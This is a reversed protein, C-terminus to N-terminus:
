GDNAIALKISKFEEFLKKWVGSFEMFFERKSSEEMKSQTVKDAFLEIVLMLGDSTSAGFAASYEGSLSYIKTLGRTKLYNSIFVTAAVGSDLNCNKAIAIGLVRLMIAKVNDYYLIRDAQNLVADNCRTRLGDWTAEREPSFLFDLKDTCYDTVSVKKKFFM